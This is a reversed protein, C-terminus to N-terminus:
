IVEHKSLNWHKWLLAYPCLNEEHVKKWPTSHCLDSHNSNPSNRCWEYLGCPKTGMSFLQEIQSIAKFYEVDVNDTMGYPPIKFYEGKNNSMLPTGVCRVCYGFCGNTPLGQHKAMKILFCPDNKRWDWVFDFLRDIWEYYSNVISMNRIYCQLKKKVVSLMEQFSCLLTMQKGDTNVSKQCYFYNYIDEPANFCLRGDRIEKMVSVFCTGPNSFMLSMDCLALVMLRNDSFNPVYYDAVKEAAMYPFEPSIKFDSPSCCREMLYAMSETIANSGFILQNENTHIIVNPISQMYKNPILDDKDEKILSIDFTSIGYDGGDDGSTLKQIRQNLLVNDDNDDISIPVRIRTSKNKNIRTIVSHIYESYVYIRNLGYNTSIDQLFHIYEHFLTTLESPALKSFSLDEANTDVHLEFFAPIYYGLIKHLKRTM